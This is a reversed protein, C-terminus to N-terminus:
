GGLIWNLIIEIASLVAFISVIAGAIELTRIFRNPPKKLVELMADLTKSIHRLVERDENEM